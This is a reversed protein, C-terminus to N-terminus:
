RWRAMREAVTRRGRHLHGRVSGASVGLVEAIEEYSMEDVERLLWAARQLWPLEALAERLAVVLEADLVTQLPDDGSPSAHWSIVAEEVPVPVRRRQLDAARRFVLTFLWTRLSSRGRFSGLDRWASVFAEQVAEGTDADNGLLGLAYRYM